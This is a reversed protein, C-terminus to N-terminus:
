GTASKRSLKGIMEQWKKSRVEMIAYKNWILFLKEWEMLFCEM